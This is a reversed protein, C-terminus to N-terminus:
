EYLGSNACAPLPSRHYGIWIVVFKRIKLPGIVGTRKGLANDAFYRVPINDPETLKQSCGGIEQIHGVAPNHPAIQLKRMGVPGTFFNVM